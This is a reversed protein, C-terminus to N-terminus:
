GIRDEEAPPWGEILAAHCQRFIVNAVRVSLSANSLESAAREARDLSSLSPYVSLRRQQPISSLSLLIVQFFFYPFLLSPLADGGEETRLSDQVLFHDM